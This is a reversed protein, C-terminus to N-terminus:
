FCTFINGCFMSWGGDIPCINHWPRHLEHIFGAEKSGIHGSLELINQQFDEVSIIADFFKPMLECIRLYIMVWWKVLLMLSTELEVFSCLVNSRQMVSYMHFCVATM